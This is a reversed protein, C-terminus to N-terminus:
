NLFVRLNSVSEQAESFSYKSAARRLAPVLAILSVTESQKRDRTVIASCHM